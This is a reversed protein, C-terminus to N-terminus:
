RAIAATDGDPRRNQQQFSRMVALAAQRQEPTLEQYLHLMAREETLNREDPDWPLARGAARFVEDVSLGLRDAFQRLVGDGPGRGAAGRTRRKWAGLTSEPIGTQRAIDRVTLHREDMVRTILDALDPSVDGGTATAM